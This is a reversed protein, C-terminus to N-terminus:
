LWTLYKAYTAALILKLIPMVSPRVSQCVSPRISLRVSLRFSLHVFLCVSWRISPCVFLYSLFDRTLNLILHENPPIENCAPVSSRPGKSDM